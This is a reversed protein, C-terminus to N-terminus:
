KILPNLSRVNYVDTKIINNSNIANISRLHKIMGSINLIKIIPNEKINIKPNSTLRHISLTSIIPTIIKLENNNIITIITYLILFISIKPKPSILSSNPIPINNPKVFKEYANTTADSAAKNTSTIIKFFFLSM